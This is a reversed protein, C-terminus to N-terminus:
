DEAPKVVVKREPGIGRSETAVDPRRSLEMHIIRREYANMPSLAVERKALSVENAVSLAMEKLFARRKKKFGNVDLEIRYSGGLSKRSIVRLLHQAALLTEADRGIFIQPDDVVAEVVVADSDDVVVEIRVEPSIKELLDRAVGKLAAIDIKSENM